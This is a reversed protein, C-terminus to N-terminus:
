SKSLGEVMHLHGEIVTLTKDVFRKLDADQTESEKKFLRDDAKHAKVMTSIYENDFDAGSLAALKEYIRQHKADLIDPLNVGKQSALSKLDNNIQTHDSVMKQGFSKVDDRTAKQSALDGLKVELLGGEAANTMFKQDAVTLSTANTVGGSMDNQAQAGPTGLLLTAAGLALALIAPMFKQRRDRCPILVNTKMSNKMLQGCQTLRMEAASIGFETDSSGHFFLRNRFVVRASGTAVHL